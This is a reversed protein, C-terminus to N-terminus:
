DASFHRGFVVSNNCFEPMNWVISNTTNDFLRLVLYSLHKRSSVLRVIARMRVLSAPVEYVM